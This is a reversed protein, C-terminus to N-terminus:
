VERREIHELADRLPDDTMRYILKDVIDGARRRSADALIAGRGRRKQLGRGIADPDMDGIRFERVTIKIM